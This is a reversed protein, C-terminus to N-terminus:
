VAVITPAHSIKFNCSNAIFCMENAQRHLEEALPLLTKFTIKVVPYLTVELFKGSGRSEELIGIVEDSYAAVVLNNVSCLHLYCLMHCASIASLFLEEPNYKTEDGRFALASSGDIKTYKGGSCIQYDKRYSRGQATRNGRNGTWEISISFSHKKM